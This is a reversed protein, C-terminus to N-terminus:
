TILLENSNKMLYGILQEIKNFWVEVRGTKISIPLEKNNEISGIRKNNLMIDIKNKKGTFRIPLEFLNKMIHNINNLDFLDEKIKMQNYIEPKLSLEINELLVITLEKANSFSYKIGSYYSKSVYGISGKDFVYLSENNNDIIEYCNEKICNVVKIDFQEIVYKICNM